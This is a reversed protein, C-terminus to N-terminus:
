APVAAGSRELLERTRESVDKEQSVYQNLVSLVDAEVEKPAEAEIDGSSLLSATIEHAINPAKTGYLRM